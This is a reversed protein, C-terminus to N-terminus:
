TQTGQLNKPFDFRFHTGYLHHAPYVYLMAKGINYFGCSSLILNLVIEREKKKRTM